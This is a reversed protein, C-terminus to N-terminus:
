EPLGDPEPDLLRALRQAGVLAFRLTLAKRRAANLRAVPAERLVAAGYADAVILGRDDPLVELPFGEPVAFYLQDCFGEYEPWKQDSRFDELSSKIEVVLIEGSGGLAIVDVRRGNRLTFETLTAYGLEALARCVGRSVQRSIRDDALAQSM